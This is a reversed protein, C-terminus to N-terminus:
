REVGNAHESKPLRRFEQYPGAFRGAKTLIGARKLSEIMEEPTSKSVRELFHDFAASQGDPKHKLRAM